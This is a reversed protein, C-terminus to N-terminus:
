RENQHRMSLPRTRLSELGRSAARGGSPYKHGLTQSVRPALFVTLWTAALAAFVFAGGQQSGELIPYPKARDDAAFFWWGAGLVLLGGLARNGWPWPTMWLGRLGSVSVAIQIAGICATLAFALYETLLQPM